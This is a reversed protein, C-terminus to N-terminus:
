TLIDYVLEVEGVRLRDGPRLPVPTAGLPLERGNVSTGNGSNRDEVMLTGSQFSLMAHQRSVSDHPIHLQCLDRNRGLALKGRNRLFFDDGFEVHYSRGDPGRGRLVMRGGSPSPAARGDTGRPSERHDPFKQPPAAERTGRVTLRSLGDVIAERPKKWAMLFSVIALAAVALILIIQLVGGSRPLKARAMSVKIPIRHTRALEVLHASHIAMAYDVAGVSKGAFVVGAARGEVDILAGGSNGGSTKANHQIMDARVASGDAFDMVAEQQFRGVEGSFTAPVFPAVAGPSGQLEGPGVERLGPSSSPMGLAGPFGIAMVRQGSSPHAVALTAVGASRVKKTKLIALDQEESVAVVEGTHILVRDGSAVCVLFQRGGEIVHFNTAVHGDDSIFFGSGLPDGDLTLILVSFGKAKEIVRDSFQASVPQVVLLPLFVLGLLTSFNWLPSRSVFRICNKM